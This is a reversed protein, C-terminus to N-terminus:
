HNHLPKQGIFQTENRLGQRRDGIRANERYFVTRLLSFLRLLENTELLYTPNQPGVESVKERIFTQYFLLGGPKIARIIADTLNRDLFRSIVIVDYACPPLSDQSINEEMAKITLAHRSAYRRLKEVAISSADLATVDLGHEALVIANAGLGCALDLATGSDPLLFLNDRLVECPAQNGPEADRYQRNWKDRLEANM